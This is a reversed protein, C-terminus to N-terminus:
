QVPFNFFTDPFPEDNLTYHWWERSYARFGAAEMARRLILRNASQEPTIQNTGHHSIDGFFDFPAGMDIDGGTLFCVLTLDVVSGRSHGSRSSIYGSTFLDSKNVGPYFVHKMREDELDRGWRVFHAVADAPRYTDFIKIIYGQDFLIESATRLALAAELTLIAVPALYGDIREGVFNYESYYRIDQLAFPVFDAAYVFGDPLAHVHTEEPDEIFIYAANIGTAIVFNGGYLFVSMTLFFVAFLLYRRM